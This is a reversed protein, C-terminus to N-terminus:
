RLATSFTYLMIFLLAIGLFLALFGFGKFFFNCGNESDHIHKLQLMFFRM